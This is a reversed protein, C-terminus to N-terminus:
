SRETHQPIVICTGSATRLDPSMKNGTKKAYELDVLKGVGNYWLINSISIDRHVWNLKTLLKLATNCSRQPDCSHIILYDPLFAGIVTDALAKMVDHFSPLLDVTVGKEEFVIHYHMKHLYTLTVHPVHLRLNLSRSLVKCELVTTHQLKFSSAGNLQHMLARTDDPVGPDMLIDGHCITTLFHKKVLKKDEQDAEEYLQALVTGETMRDHDIWIDKLVVPTDKEKGDLEIAEFVRTRSRPTAGGRIVIYGTHHPVEIFQTPDGAARIMTPDFGFSRRDAFAFAAFLEVLEKPEAIFTFPKSVVVSSRCCFWVRMMTNEIMVGYTVEMSVKACKANDLDKMGDGQKYECSLAIDAWSISGSDSRDKLLLYGDPRTTNYREASTPARSPNQVLEVSWEDTTLKTNVIIATIINDFINTIPKFVAEEGDSHHKPEKNFAEWRGSDSLIGDPMSKLANMTADIDFDPRRSALSDMFTQLTVEPVTPGDHLVDLRAGDLLKTSTVLTFKRQIFQPTTSSQLRSDPLSNRIDRSSGVKQFDRSRAHIPQPVACMSGTQSRKHQSGSPKRRDVILGQLQRLLSRDEIGEDEELAEVIVSTRPDRLRREFLLFDLVGKEEAREAVTAAITSKGIGALGNLWYVPACQAPCAGVVVYYKDEIGEDEELAEVIVSKFRNDSNALQFALTLFVTRPDRLVRDNRSFFFTAGLVGKEEAREAVTAAITSKGIGALGNLWYVPHVNDQALELWSMIGALIDVRAGELCLSPANKRTSNYEAHHARVSMLRAIGTSGRTYSLNIAVDGGHGGVAVPEGVADGGRGTGQINHLFQITGHDLVVTGAAPRNKLIPSSFTAPGTERHLLRARIEHQYRFQSELEEDDERLRHWREAIYSLKSRPRRRLINYRSSAISEEAACEFRDDGDLFM